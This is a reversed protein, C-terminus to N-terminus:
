NDHYPLFHVLQQFFEMMSVHDTIKATDLFQSLAESPASGGKEFVLEIKERLRKYLSVSFDSATYDEYLEFNLQMPFYNRAETALTDLVCQFFTTKGTQRPAFLVLYKDKKVKNIFDTIEKPRSVVYNEEPNVPGQTGFTKM